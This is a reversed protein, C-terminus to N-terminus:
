EEFAAILANTLEIGPNAYPCQSSTIINKDQVIPGEDSWIHIANDFREDKQPNLPFAFQTEELVGAEALVVVGWRQAAVLKGEDVAQKV